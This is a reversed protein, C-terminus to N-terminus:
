QLLLQVEWEGRSRLKELACTRDATVRNIPASSAPPRFEEKGPCRTDGGPKRSLRRCQVGPALAPRAGRAAGWGECHRSWLSAGHMDASADQDKSLRFPAERSSSLSSGRVSYRGGGQTARQSGASSERRGRGGRPVCGPLWRGPRLHVCLPLLSQLFPKLDLCDSNVHFSHRREDVLPPSVRSSEGRKEGLMTSM